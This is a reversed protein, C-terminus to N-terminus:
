MIFIKSNNTSRQVPHQLIQKMLHTPYEPDHAAMFGNKQLHIAVNQTWNKYNNYRMVRDDSVPVSM